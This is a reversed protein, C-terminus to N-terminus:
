KYRIFPERGGLLLSLFFGPRLRVKKIFPLAGYGGESETPSLSYCHLMLLAHICSQPMVIFFPISGQAARACGISAFENETASIVGHLVILRTIDLWAKVQSSIIM